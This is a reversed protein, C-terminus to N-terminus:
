TTEKLVSREKLFKYFNRNMVEAYRYEKEPIPETYKM